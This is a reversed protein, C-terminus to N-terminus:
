SEACHSRHYRSKVVNDNNYDITVVNDVAISKHKPATQRRRSTVACWAAAGLTGGEAEGVVCLYREYLVFVREVIRAPDPAVRKRTPEPRENERCGYIEVRSGQRRLRAPM